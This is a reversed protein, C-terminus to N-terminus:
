RGKNQEALVDLYTAITEATYTELENLPIRTAVSLEILM